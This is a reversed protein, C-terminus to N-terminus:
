DYIADRKLAEDPLGVGQPRPQEAWTLWRDARETATAGAWFPQVRVPRLILAGERIELHYQDARSLQRLVESPVRLEGQSDIGLIKVM